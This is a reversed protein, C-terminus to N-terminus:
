ASLSPPQLAREIRPSAWRAGRRIVLLVAVLATLALGAFLLLGAAYSGTLYKAFGLCSALVFGGIGGTMGVLGTIVAVESHFRQPVLQFVAGNGIGLVGMALAFFALAMGQGPVGLSVALLAAFAIAYVAVLTRLGGCRDACFGGVPRLASGAFVCAATINGALVPGVGYQTHFYVPLSAALGIFGGFSVAYLLMLLWADGAALLRAYDRLALKVLPRPPPKAALVFIVLVLCLPLVALWLVARWGWLLALGPAFIAALVTGSNGAGTIGLAIGQHELPYWLSTLPLAIAFSAGAIGLMAGIILMQSFSHLGVVWAALLALIVAIQAMIGARKPGIHQALIGAPIRFVAGALVPLAVMLGTQAANLGLDKAILAALPGFVLWIMFSFDFYLFSAILTPLHGAKLFSRIM